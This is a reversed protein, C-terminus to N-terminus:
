ISLPSFLGSLVDEAGGVFGSKNEPNFNILPTNSWDWAKKYWPANPDTQGTEPRTPTDLGSFISSTSAASLPSAPAAPPNSSDLGEFISNSKLPASTPPPTNPTSDTLGDFVSSTQPM